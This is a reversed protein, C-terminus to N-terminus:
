FQLIYAQTFQTTRTLSDALRNEYAETDGWSSIQDSTLVLLEENGTTPVLDTVFGVQRFFLPITESGPIIIQNFNFGSFIGQILVYLCNGKIADAPTAYPSFYRANQNNDYVTYIGGVPDEYVLAVTTKAAAIPNFLESFRVIETGAGTVTSTVTVSLTSPWLILFNYPLNVPNYVSVLNMGGLTDDDSIQTALDGAVDTLTEGQVCTHTFLFPDHHIGSVNISLTVTDGATVTGALIVTRAPLSKEIVPARNENVLTGFNADWPTTQALVMWTNYRQKLTNNM